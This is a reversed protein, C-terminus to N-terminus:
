GCWDSCYGDNLKKEFSRFIMVVVLWYQNDLQLTHVVAIGLEMARSNARGTERKRPFIWLHTYFCYLILILSASFFCGLIVGGDFAPFELRPREDKRNGAEASSDM